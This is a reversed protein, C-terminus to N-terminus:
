KFNDLFHSRKEIVENFSEEHRCKICTPMEEKMSDEDLKMTDGCGWCISSRGEILNDLHPPMWHNCNACRWVNVHKLSTRMYKHIHKPTKQKSM